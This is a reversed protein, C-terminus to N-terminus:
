CSRELIPPGADQKLQEAAEQINATIQALVRSFTEMDEESIGQHLLRFFTEAYADLRCSAEVSLPSLSLIIRRRDVTDPTAVVYGTEVLHEVSHSILSKSTGLALALEKATCGGKKYLRMLIEMENPSFGDPACAAGFAKRYGHVAKLFATLVPNGDKSLLLRHM